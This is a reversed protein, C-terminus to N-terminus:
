VTMAKAKEILDDLTKCIQDSERDNHAVDLEPPRVVGSINVSELAKIFAQHIETAIASPTKAALSRKMLELQKLISKLNGMNPQINDEAKLIDQFLTLDVVTDDVLIKIDLDQLKFGGAETPNKALHARVATGVVTGFATGNIDNFKVKM